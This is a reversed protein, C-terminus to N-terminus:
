TGAPTTIGVEDLAALIHEDDFDVAGPFAGVVVGDRDLLVTTPVGLTGFVRKFENRRDRWLATTLGHDAVKAEIEDEVDAADLNVAVIELGSSTSSAAFEQLGSLEEDCETCWTTWSVLLVPHGRLSEVSVAAGTTLDTASYEVAGSSGGGCAALAGAVCAVILSRAIRRRIM